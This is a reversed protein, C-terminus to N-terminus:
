LKSTGHDQGNLHKSFFDQIKQWSDEQALSHSRPEGGWLVPFGVLLHMSAPCMPFFPPEIYHGAGPYCVIEPKNKGHELLSDSAIRAFFESKWNKDDQGVIFLFHGDAKEVPILSKRNPEELPNNLVDVINAIGSKNIKIRKTDFGLPPITVDKYHLFAAVNAVCGNIIASATIGKLFAAMAIVLDGGKSHGLLGIGPGEVPLCSSPPGSEVRESLSGAPGRGCFAANM